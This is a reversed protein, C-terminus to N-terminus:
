QSAHPILISLSRFAASFRTATLKGSVSFAQPSSTLSGSSEKFGSPAAETFCSGFLMGSAIDLITYTEPFPFGEKLAVLLAQALLLIVMRQMQNQSINSRPRVQYSYFYFYDAVQCLSLTFSLPLGERTKFELRCRNRKGTRFNTLLLFLSSM